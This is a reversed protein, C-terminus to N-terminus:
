PSSASRRARPPPAQARAASGAGGHPQPQLAFYPPRLAVSRGREFHAYADGMNAKSERLSKVENGWLVLGAEVTEEIHYDRRAKKNTCVVKVAEAHDKGKAM